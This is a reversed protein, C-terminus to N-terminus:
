YCPTLFWVLQHAAAARKGFARVVAESSFEGSALKPVLESATLETIALEEKTFWGSTGPWTTVDDQSEPPLLEAPIRWEQPISNSLDSRKKEAIAKWTGEAM